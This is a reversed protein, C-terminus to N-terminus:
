ASRRRYREALEALHPTLDRATIDPDPPPDAPPDGGVETYEPSLEPALEALRRDVHADLWDRPGPRSVGSDPHDPHDDAPIM